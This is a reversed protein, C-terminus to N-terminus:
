GRIRPMLIMDWISPVEGCPVHILAPDGSSFAAKIRAELEEPSQALFGAMGFSDALQVFDPSTLDCAIHRGGFMDRQIRKVNGFMSNDFVVAVVPLKHHVATALEGVQYLFGGDGAISLVPRGPNAAQAGLATGYGWGLNDQFGASLFTRPSYVPFALRSAFGMQTVEDVFIGDDPLARRIAELYSKQPELRRYKEEFWARHEFLDNSWDAKEMDDTELAAVLAATYSKADGVMSVAPEKFRGPAAPDTDIRIVRINEDLGWEKEQVFLRTGIGIVVDVKPWMRHGIPMNIALPHDTPIVGRGRRYSLVPAGLLEALRTVEGSADLAGGGVVIMPHRSRLAIAAAARVQHLDIEQPIRDAVPEMKVDGRKAWVDFGCEIYAPGAKGSRMAAFADNVARPGEAPSTIQRAFKNVHSAFGIQDRMEHLHGHGKDIDAHPIQSGITLVPACMAEATLMAASSNAVGPGPVVSSVHPRGTSITAGLAMYGCTQEHRPHIVRIGTTSRYLADFLPDSQLGPLGFVIDAGNAALAAVVADATSTEVVPQESQISDPKSLSNMKSAM